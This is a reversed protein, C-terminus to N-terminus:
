TPDQGSSMWQSSSTHLSSGLLGCIIERWEQGFGMQQMVEIMFPWSVSDFAKTIDLKFLLKALNQQHLFRSTQQVLTFNGQIFRVKILASQTPSVMNNLRRSLRNDLIKTVLKAFSHVPSTPRFDKVRDAGEM